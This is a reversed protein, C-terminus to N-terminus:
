RYTITLNLIVFSNTSSKVFDITTNDCDYEETQEGDRIIAKVANQLVEIQPLNTTQLTLNKRKTITIGQRSISEINEIITSRFVQNNEADILIVEM